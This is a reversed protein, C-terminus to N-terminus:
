FDKEKNSEELQFEKKTIPFNENSTTLGIVYVCENNDVAVSYGIDEGNGSLYTSYLLCEEGSKTLDFKVLLM